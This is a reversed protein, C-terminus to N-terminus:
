AGGLGDPLTTLTNNSSGRLCLMLAGAVILSASMLLFGARSDGTRAQLLGVLLTGAFGGLAGWSNVLATVEGAVSKPLLEPIIAFFPGYPAFMAGGALIMFGYAWWFSHMATVYSGFLAVGALMLFPWVFRRRRFSKDSLYGVTLMLLIAALYPVASLLGTIAIGRAAGAQIVTPLWLVFGYVGMSWFFYHVSLLIASPHRFAQGM